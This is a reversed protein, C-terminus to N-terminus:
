GDSGPTDRAYMTAAASIVFEAQWASIQLSGM